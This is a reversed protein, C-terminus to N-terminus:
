LFVCYFDTKLYWTGRWHSVVMMQSIVKFHWLEEENVIYFLCRKLSKKDQIVVNSQCLQHDRLVSQLTYCIMFLYYQCAFNMTMVAYQNSTLDHKDVFTHRINIEKSPFCIVFCRIHNYWWFVLVIYVPDDIFGNDATKM